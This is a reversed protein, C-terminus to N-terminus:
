SRDISSLILEWHGVDRWEDFKRGIEKMHSIKKFGFKEHLCVSAENPICIGSILVHTTKYDIHSLLYEFLQRGIGKHRMNKDLYISLEKTSSYACRGNWRHIYCYGVIKNDVVAVFYPLGNDLVEEIRGRMENVPVENTEFTVATNIVYYNYISCIAQADGINVTRILIENEMNM